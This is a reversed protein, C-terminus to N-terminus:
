SGSFGTLVGCLVINMLDVYRSYRGDGASLFRLWRPEWFLYRVLRSGGTSDIVSIRTCLFNYDPYNDTLMPDLILTFEILRPLFIHSWSSKILILSIPTTNLPDFSWSVWLFTLSICLAFFFQTVYMQDGGESFRSSQLCVNARMQLCQFSWSLFCYFSCVM